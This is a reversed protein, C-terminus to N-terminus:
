PVLVINFYYSQTVGGFLYSLKVVSQVNGVTTTHNYPNTYYTINCTVDDGSYIIDAVSMPTAIVDDDYNVLNSPKFQNSEINNLFNDVRSIKYVSNFPTNYYAIPAEVYKYGSLCNSDGICLEQSSCKICTGIEATICDYHYAPCLYPTAPCEPNSKLCADCGGNICMEGAGNYACYYGEICPAVGPCIESGTCQRCIYGTPCVFTTPECTYGDACPAVAPCYETSACQACTYGAPCTFSTNHTVNCSLGTVNLFSTNQQSETIIAGQQLATSYTNHLKFTVTQTSSYLDKRTSVNIKYYTYLNNETLTESQYIYGTPNVGTTYRPSSLALTQILLKAGSVLAGSTATGSIHVTTSFISYGISIFVIFSLMILVNRSIIMRIYRIKM